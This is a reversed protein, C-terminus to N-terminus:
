ISETVRALSAEIDDCEFWATLADLEADPLSPANSKFKISLECGNLRNQSKGRPFACEARLVRGDSM